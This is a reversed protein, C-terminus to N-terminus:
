ATVQELVHDALLAAADLGCGENVGRFGGFASVEFVVPGSATLAVDVTTFSLGFPAQAKEALAILDADPDFAAYKGGSHITTNWADSQSVRAYTCLYKGGLFVMGLDQGSLDLKQQIYMVPNAVGFDALVRDLDPDEASVLAMGRAKTSYLPKLVAGGFADIAARAATLDETVRTAPMPVGANALSVTCALRDILRLISEPRSFIRVGKAEAVRLLELRDLAHPSYTESIKKVVLGDLTSLDLGDHILRGTALDCDVQGMDIVHRFGTRAELADAMAETSWKGPIGVVGIRHNSM